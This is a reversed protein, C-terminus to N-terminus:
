VSHTVWCVLFIRLMVALSVSSSHFTWGIAKSYTASSKKSPPLSTLFARPLSPAVLSGLYLNLDKTTVLTQLYEHAKTYVFITRQLKPDVLRAVRQMKYKAAGADEVCVLVRHSPEILEMIARQMRATKKDEKKKSKKKREGSYEKGSEHGEGTLPEAAANTQNSDSGEVGM